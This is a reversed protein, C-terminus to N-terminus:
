RREGKLMCVCVCVCVCVCESPPLCQFGSDSLYYASFSDKCKCARGCPSSPTLEGGVRRSAALPVHCPPTWAALSLPPLRHRTGALLHLLGYGASIIVIHLLQSLKRKSPCLLHLAGAPSLSHLAPRLRGLSSVTEGQLGAM